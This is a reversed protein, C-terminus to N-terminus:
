LFVFIECDSSVIVTSVCIGSKKPVSYFTNPRNLGHKIMVPNTMHLSKLINSEVSPPAPSHSEYRSCQYIERQLTAEMSIYCERTVHVSNNVFYLIMIPLVLKIM